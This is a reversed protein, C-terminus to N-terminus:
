LVALYALSLLISCKWPDLTKANWVPLRKGPCHTKAPCPHTDQKLHAVVQMAHIFLFFTDQLFQAAIKIDQLFFFARYFFHEKGGYQFGM